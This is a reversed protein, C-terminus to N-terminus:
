LLSQEIKEFWPSIASFEIKEGGALGMINHPRMDLGHFDSGGSKYLGHDHCYDSLKNQQEKTFIGYHCELGDLAYNQTIDDLANAINPSYVYPHALFVLGDARHIADTVAKFSPFVETQDVFLEHKPNLLYYRAWRHRTMTIFEEKSEFFRANEPYRRIEELFMPRCGLHSHRLMGEPDELMGKAFADNMKVGKKLFAKATLQAERARRKPLPLYNEKTFEDIIKLDIGYGLVEIMEGCYFTSMEIAPLIKGSFLHRKEKIENYASVTNHDSVSFLSLGSAEAQTLSNEVTSTGDSYTTHSHLDIYLM